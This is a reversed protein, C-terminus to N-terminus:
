STKNKEGSYMVPILGTPISSVRSVSTSPHWRGEPNGPPAPLLHPLPPQGGPFNPIAELRGTGSLLLLLLPTYHPNEDVGHGFNLNKERPAVIAAAAFLLRACTAGTFDPAGGRRYKRVRRKELSERLRTELYRRRFIVGGFGVCRNKRKGRRFEDNDRRPGARGTPGDSARERAREVGFALCGAAAVPRRRRGPAARRDAGMQEGPLLSSFLACVPACVGTKRPRWVRARVRRVCECLRVSLSGRLRRFHSIRTGFGVTIRSVMERRLSSRSSFICRFSAREHFNSSSDLIRNEMTRWSQPKADLSRERFVLRNSRSCSRERRSWSLQFRQNFRGGCGGGLGACVPSHFIQTFLTLLLVAPTIVLCVCLSVMQHVNPITINAFILISIMDINEERHYRYISIVDINGM